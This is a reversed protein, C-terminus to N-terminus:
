EDLRRQLMSADGRNTENLNLKDIRVLKQELLEKFQQKAHTDRLPPIGPAKPIGRGSEGLSCASIGEISFCAIVPLHDSDNDPHPPIICCKSFRGLLHSPCLVHDIWTYVHRAHCYFTYEVSQISHLDVCALSNENMFDYLFRSHKSFGINRYWLDNLRSSRPLQVNFDGLFILPCQACYIDVVSQMIDLCEIYNESKESNGSEFCPMYVHCLVCLLNDSCNYYLGATIVRDSDCEIEKVNFLCNKKYIIALGGYPRGTHCGPDEEMSSKALVGYASNCLRPHSDLFTQITCLEGPRLWTECLCLFDCTMLLDVIYEANRKFSKCNFTVCTMKKAIETGADMTGSPTPAPTPIANDM